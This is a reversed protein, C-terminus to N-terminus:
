NNNLLVMDLIIIVSYDLFEIKIESEDLIYFGDRDCMIEGNIKIKGQSIVCYM